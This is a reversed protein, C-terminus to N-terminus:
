ESNNDEEGESKESDNKASGDSNDNKLGAKSSMSVGDVFVEVINNTVEILGDSEKNAM